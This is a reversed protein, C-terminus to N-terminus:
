FEKTFKEQLKEVEQKQELNREWLNEFDVEKRSLQLALSDKESRIKEKEAQTTKLQEQISKFQSTIGILKEELGIKESQSKATFLLKGLYLGIALAICFTLITLLTANM